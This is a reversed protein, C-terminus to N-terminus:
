THVNLPRGRMGPCSELRAIAHHEVAALQRLGLFVFFPAANVVDRRLQFPVSSSLKALLATFPRRM